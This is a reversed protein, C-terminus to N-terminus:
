LKLQHQGSFFQWIRVMAFTDLKCYAILQDQLVLKREPSTAGDIAERYATMAMDGDQVGSLKEYQLDAAVAPLVKKISWSGMQSPSYYRQEAIRLLDVVRENIALLDKKLRPFREALDKIRGTEFAANYVFVPGKSGCTDILAEAFPRSPDNGTLDLFSTHELPRDNSLLHDSFQYPIKQYPRTGKWIPVSFQITEFDLFHAPLKHPSLDIAAGKADFFETNALTHSKVRRQRENLLDDPIDKLEIARNDEILAKLDKTQIRPLLSAPYKAQPEQSKCYKIFGCQFPDNCHRGTLTSPETSNAAIAHGEAIWNKVESKRELAEDTLDTEVLIGKYNGEGGYVFERNIHALSVSALKVGASGAVFAQVAVDDRYYDKVSTSSKVEVMRWAAKGARKVPLMVDAFALAGGASFGAEFVPNSQSLANTTQSLSVELGDKEIDILIGKAKPDYLKRALEGIQNGIEFSTETSASDEKLEPHHIELWFRRHCQRYALLKSKSLARM